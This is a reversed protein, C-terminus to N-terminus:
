ECFLYNTSCFEKFFHNNIAKYNINDLFHNFRVWFHNDLFDFYLFVRGSMELDELEELGMGDLEFNGLM